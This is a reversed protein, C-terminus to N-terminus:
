ITNFWFPSRIYLLQTFKRISVSCCGLFQTFHSRDTIVAVLQPHETSDTEMCNHVIFVVMVVVGAAVVVM